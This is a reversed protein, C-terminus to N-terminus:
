SAKLEAFYKKAFEQKALNSVRVYRAFAESDHTHGTWERVLAEPMSLLKDSTSSARMQHIHLADCLRMKVYKGKKFVQVEERFIEYRSAITKIRKNISQSLPPMLLGGHKLINRNFIKLALEPVPVDVVVGSSNATKQPRFKLMTIGNGSSEYLNDRTWSNMDGRRAGILLGVVIYDVTNVQEKTVCDERIKDYNDIFFRIQEHSITEVEKKTKKYRLDKLLGGLDIGEQAAFYYIMQKIQYVRKYATQDSAGTSVIFAKLESIWNNIEAAVKARGLVVATALNYRSIDLDPGTNLFRKVFECTEYLMKSTAPALPRGTKVNFIMNAALRRQYEYTMYSVTMQVQREDSKREKNKITQIIAEAPPNDGYLQRVQAFREHIRTELTAVERNLDSEGAQFRGSRFDFKKAGISIGTALDTLQQKNYRVRFMLKDRKRFYNITIGM